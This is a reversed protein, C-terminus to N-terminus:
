NRLFVSGRLSYPAENQRSRGARDIELSVWVEKLNLSPNENLTEFLVSQVHRGLFSLKSGDSQDFLCFEGESDKRAAFVRPDWSQGSASVVPTLPEGTNVIVGSDSPLRFLLTQGGDEVRPYTVGAIEV